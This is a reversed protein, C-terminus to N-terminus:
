PQTRPAQGGDGYSRGINTKNKLRERPGFSYYLYSIGDSLNAHVERIFLERLTRASISVILYFLLLELKSISTQYRLLIPIAYKDM